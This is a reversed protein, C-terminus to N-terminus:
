KTYGLSHTKRWNWDSRIIADLDNYQPNWGLTEKAKKASAVSVAIDGPRREVTETPLDKGTIISAKDIIEKVSYGQECGLNFIQNSIKNINELAL